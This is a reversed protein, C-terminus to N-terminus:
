ARAYQHLLAASEGLASGHPDTAYVLDENTRWEDFWKYTSAYFAGVDFEAHPSRALAHLTQNIYLAWRPKYYTRLLGAWQKCAYDQLNSPRYVASPDGAIPQPYEWFTVQTKANWAMLKKEDATTGWHKSEQVWRGFLFGAATGLLRDMDDILALLDAGYEKIGTTDNREVAKSLNAYIKSSHKALVQRGVDVIDNVFTTQNSLSPEAKGAEVFLQWAHVVKSDDYLSKGTNPDDTGFTKDWVKGYAIATVTDKSVMEGDSVNFVTACLLRWATELAAAAKPTAAGYRRRSYRAVWDMLDVKAASRYSNENMLDYVVPNQWVGEPTLGTGIITAGAARAAAPGTSISAFDGWMGNNGGFDNLM